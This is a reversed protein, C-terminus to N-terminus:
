YGWMVSAGMSHGLLTIDDLERHEIFERLDRALRSIRYGHDPREREGHGRHDQALCHFRDSLDAFQERFMAASQSWGPLMLLTPGSGSELWSLDVGDGNKFSHRQPTPRM